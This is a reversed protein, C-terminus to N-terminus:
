MRGVYEDVDEGAKWCPKCIGHHDADYDADEIM